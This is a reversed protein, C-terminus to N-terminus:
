QAKKIGLKIGKLPINPLSYFAQKQSPIGPLMENIVLPFRWMLPLDEPFIFSPNVLTDELEPLLEIFNQQAFAGMVADSLATILNQKNQPTTVTTKISFLPSSSSLLNRCKSLYSNVKEEDNMFIKHLMGPASIVKRIIAKEGAHVRKPTLTLDLQVPYSLNHLVHCLHKLRWDQVENCSHPLTTTGEIHNHGYGVQRESTMILPQNFFAFCKERKNNEHLRETEKKTQIPAFLYPSDPQKSILLEISDNLDTLRAKLIAEETSSSTIIFEVNTKSTKQETVDTSYRITFSTDTFNWLLRVINRLFLIISESYVKPEQEMMPIAFLRYAFAGNFQGDEQREIVLLPGESHNFEFKKSASIEVAATSRRM